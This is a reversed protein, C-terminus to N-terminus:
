FKLSNIPENFTKIEKGLNEKKLVRKRAERKDLNESTRMWTIFTEKRRWRRRYVSLKKTAARM